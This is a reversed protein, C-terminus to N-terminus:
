CRHCYETCFGDAKDPLEEEKFYRLLDEEPIDINSVDESFKDFSEKSM